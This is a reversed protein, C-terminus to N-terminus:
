RGIWIGYLVGILTLLAGRTAVAYWRGRAGTQMIMLAGWSAPLIVWRFLPNCMLDYLNNLM